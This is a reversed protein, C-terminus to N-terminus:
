QVLTPHIEPLCTLINTQESCSGINMGGFKPHPDGVGLKQSTSFGGVLKSIWSDVM